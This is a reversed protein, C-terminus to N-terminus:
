AERRPSRCSRVKYLGDGMWAIFRVPKAGTSGPSVFRSRFPQVLAV